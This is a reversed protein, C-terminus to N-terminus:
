GPLVARPADPPPTPLPLGAALAHTFAGIWENLLPPQWVLQVLSGGPRLVRAINRFAAVPNGFFMTGIRSVAVDFAQAPFSHVQADAQAQMTFGVTM